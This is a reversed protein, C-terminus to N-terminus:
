RQMTYRSLRLEQCITQLDDQYKRKSDDLERSFDEIYKLSGLVANPNPRLHDWRLNSKDKNNNKISLGYETCYREFLGNYNHIRNRLLLLFEILSNKLGILDIHLRIIEKVIKKYNGKSRGISNDLEVVRQRLKRLTAEVTYDGLVVKFSGSLLGDYVKGVTTAAKRFDSAENLYEDLLMQDFPPM